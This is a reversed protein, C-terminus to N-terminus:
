TRCQTGGPATQTSLGGGTAGPGPLAGAVTENAPRQEPFRRPLHEDELVQVHAVRDSQSHGRIEEVTFWDLGRCRRRLEPSRARSPMTSAM